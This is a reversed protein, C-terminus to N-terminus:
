WPSHIGYFQVDIIDRGVLVHLGLSTVVLSQLGQCFAFFSLSAVQDEANPQGLQAAVSCGLREKLVENAKCVDLQFGEKFFGDLQFGQRFVTGYLLNM